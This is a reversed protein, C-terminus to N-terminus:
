LSVMMAMWYAMEMIRALQRWESRAAADSIRYTEYATKGFAQTILRAEQERASQQEIEALRAASAGPLQLSASSSPRGSEEDKLAAGFWESPPRGEVVALADDTMRLYARVVVDGRWRPSLHDDWERYEASDAGLAQKMAVKAGSGGAGDTTLLVWASPWPQKQLAARDALLLARLKGRADLAAFSTTEAESVHQRVMDSALQMRKQSIRDAENVSNDLIDDATPPKPVRPRRFPNLGGGQFEPLARRQRTAPDPDGEGLFADMKRAVAASFWMKKAEPTSAREYQRRYDAAATKAMYEDRFQTAVEEDRAEEATLPRSMSARQAAAMQRVQDAREIARRSIKLTVSPQKRVDVLLQAEDAYISYEGCPMDTVAFAGDKGTTMQRSFRKFAAMRVIVVQVDALPTGDETQVIGRVSCDEARADAVSLLLAALSAVPILKM